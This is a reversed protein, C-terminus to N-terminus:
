HQLSTATDDQNATTAIDALMDLKYALWLSFQNEAQRLDLRLLRSARDLKYLMTNRHIHVSRAAANVNGGCNLYALVPGELEGSGTRNRRLPALLDRAFTRGTESTAVETLTAYVRLDHFGCVSDLSLRQRLGLAIRAERYSDSICHANAVPRGYAFAVSCNARRQLEQELTRAYQALEIEGADTSERSDTHTVQRVIALVDGVVTALTVIGQAPAIRPIDRALASLATFSDQAGPQGLGEAVLVGFPQDVPFDYHVARAELEHPASFRGHLLAHVFDGRAREQAQEISRMRLMETGAITVAQEVVVRHEAIDHPHPPESPELLVIWGDHRGGLVIPQAIQTVSKVNIEILEVSPGHEPSGHEIPEDPLDPLHQQLADVVEDGHAGGRQAPVFTLVHRQSNLIAVSCGSLRKIRHCLADLGAGRYLLEALSRHVALGFQLVHTERALSLEAVLRNIDRYTITWDVTVVPLYRAPEAVLQETANGAIVLAAASRAALVETVTEDFQELRCYIILGHLSEDTVTAQEWALCWTIPREARAPDGSLRAQRLLREQLLRDLTLTEHEEPDHAGSHGLTLTHTM